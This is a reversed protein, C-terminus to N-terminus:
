SAPVRGHVGACRVLLEINWTKLATNECGTTTIDLLDGTGYNMGRAISPCGNKDNGDTLFICTEVSEINMKTGEEITIFKVYLAKEKSKVRM